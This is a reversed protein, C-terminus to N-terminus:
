METRATPTAMVRSTKNKLRVFTTATLVNASNNQYTKAFMAAKLSLTSFLSNGFNMGMM